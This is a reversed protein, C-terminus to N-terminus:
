HLVPRTVPSSQDQDQDQDRDRDRRSVRDNVVNRLRRQWASQGDLRLRKASPGDEEEEEEERDLSVRYGRRSPSRGTRLMNNIERLCEPPSSNFFYCLGPTGPSATDTALLSVYIQPNSSLRRRRPSAQPPRPFPSLPPTDEGSTPAFQKAFQEMATSYIQNYFDILNGREQPHHASPSDPTPLGVNNDGQNNTGTLYDEDRRSILVNNCVSKDVLPQSKYCRMILKFTIEMKTVKATIYIACMLLQDLHRDVMLTVWHTLSHEFVTWIKVRLEDSINLPSCLERLRKGMLSYVKRAFRHLSNSRLPGNAASPSGSVSPEAELTGGPHTRDPHFDAGRPDELQTPLLVQQCSPLGGGNAQIKGWLWSDGTWAFIVLVKVEVQTLHRFLAGPLDPEARLVLEIANLFNYPPLNLIRLLLPFDCPLRNSSTTIELCCAMLNSQLCENECIVSVDSIRNRERMIVKKLIRSFWVLAQDCCKEALDKRNANGANDRYHQLFRHLLSELRRKIAETPNSSCARFMAIQNERPGFRPSIRTGQLGTAM